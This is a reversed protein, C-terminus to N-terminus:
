VLGMGNDLRMAFPLTEPTRPQVEAASSEAALNLPTDVRQKWRAVCAASGTERERLFLTPTLPLSRPNGAPALKALLKAGSM